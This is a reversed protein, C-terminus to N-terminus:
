QIIYNPKKVNFNVSFETAFHGCTCLIIIMAQPAPALLTVDDACAVAGNFKRGAFCDVNTQKLRLLLEDIHFCFLIPSLVAGPEIGNYVPFENSFNNNLNVRM